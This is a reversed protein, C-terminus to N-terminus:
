HRLGVLTLVNRSNQPDGGPQPVQPGEGDKKIARPLMITGQASLGGQERLEARGAVVRTAQGDFMSEAGCNELARTRCAAEPSWDM